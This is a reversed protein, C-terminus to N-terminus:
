FGPSLARNGSHNLRVAPERRPAIFARSYHQRRDFVSVTFAVLRLLSALVPLFHSIRFAFHTSTTIFNFLTRRYKTSPHTFLLSRILRPIPLVDRSSGLGSRVPHP